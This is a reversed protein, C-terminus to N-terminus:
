FRRALAVAIMTGREAHDRGFLKHPTTLSFTQTWLYRWSADLAWMDGLQMTLGGGGHLGFLRHPNVDPGEYKTPYWGLGLLLYPSAARKPAFHGILTLQIPTARATTGNSTTYKTRDISAEIMTDPSLPLRLQVGPSWQASQADTPKYRVARPAVSPESHTGPESEFAAAPACLLSVLLALAGM